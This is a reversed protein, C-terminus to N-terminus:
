ARIPGNCHARKRQAAGIELINLRKLPLLSLLRALTKRVRNETHPLIEITQALSLSESAQLNDITM